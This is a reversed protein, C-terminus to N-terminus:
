KKAIAKKKASKPQKPVNKTLSMTFADLFDKIPKSDFGGSEDIMDSLDYMDFGLEEGKRIAAYNASHFMILPITKFPNTNLGGIVEDLTKGTAELLDGIFYLGFRCEINKGSLEINIKNYM